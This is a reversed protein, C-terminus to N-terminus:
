CPFRCVCTDDPKQYFFCYGYAKPGYAKKCGNNCEDKQCGGGQLKKECQAAANMVSFESCVHWEDTIAAHVGAPPLLVSVWIVSSSFAQLNLNSVVTEDTILILKWRVGERYNGSGICGGALWSAAQPLCHLKKSFYASMPRTPLKANLLEKRIRNSAPPTAAKIEIGILHLDTIPVNGVQHEDTIPGTLSFGSAICLHDAKSQLLM